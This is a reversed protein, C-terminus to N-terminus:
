GGTEDCGLDDCVVAEAMKSFCRCFGRVPLPVLLLRDDIM